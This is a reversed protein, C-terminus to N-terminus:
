KQRWNGQADQLWWGSKAHDFWSKAFIQRIDGIKQRPINNAKAIEVYLADLDRNHAEVLQNVDAREKLSLRETTRVTLLADKTIGINGRDLFPKISQFRTRLSDRLARIAPNSINIDVQQALAERATFLSAYLRRAVSSDNQPTQKPAEKVGGKEPEGSKGHDGITEEVIKDAAREVAAAPFYINVTVCATLVLALSPLLRKHM